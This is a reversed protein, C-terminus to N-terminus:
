VWWYLNWNDRRRSRTGSGRHGVPSKGNIDDYFRCKRGNLTRWRDITDITSKLNIILYQLGWGNLTWHVHVIRIVTWLLSFDWAIMM